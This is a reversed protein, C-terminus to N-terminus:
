KRKIEKFNKTDMLDDLTKINNRFSDMKITYIKKDEGWLELDDKALLSFAATFSNEIHDLNIAVTRQSNSQSILGSSIFQDRIVSYFEDGTYEIRIIRGRNFLLDYAPHDKYPKLAKNLWFLVVSKIYYKMTKLDRLHNSKAFYKVYSYVLSSIFSRSNVILEANPANKIAMDITDFRDKVVAELEPKMLEMADEEIYRIGKNESDLFGISDWQTLYEAFDQKFKKKNPNNLSPSELLIVKNTDVTVQLKTLLTTIGVGNLGELVVINM